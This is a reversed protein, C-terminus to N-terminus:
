GQRLVEAPDLKSARRAPVFCAAVALALFMAPAAVFTIPDHATIGFLLSAMVRTLAYAAPLGIGVGAATLVVGHGVVRVLIRHAEAGLAMRIGLEPARERVSYALVGYIGVAALVSALASFLALCFM